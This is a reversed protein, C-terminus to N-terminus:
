QGLVFTGADLRKAQVSVVTWRHTIQGDVYEVVMPMGPLEALVANLSDRDEDRVATAILAYPNPLDPAVQVQCSHGEATINMPFVPFGYLTNIPGGGPLSRALPAPALTATERRGGVVAVAQNTRRDAVLRLGEGVQRVCGDQVSFETRSLVIAEGTAVSIRVLENQFFLADDRLQKAVTPSQVPIEARAQALRATLQERYDRLENRASAAVGTCTVGEEVVMVGSWDAAPVTGALFALLM